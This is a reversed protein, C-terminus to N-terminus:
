DLGFIVAAFALASLIIATIGGSLALITASILFAVLGFFIAFALRATSFFGVLNDM